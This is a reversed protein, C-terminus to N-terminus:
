TIKSNIWEFYSAIRTYVGPFGGGCPLGFSVVGVVTLTNKIVLPGGSDGQCTDAHIPFTKNPLFVPNALACLQSEMLPGYLRECATQNHVVLDAKLLNESIDGYFSIKGYGAAVVEARDRLIDDPQPLCAPQHSAEEALRLISIDHNKRKPNYEPHQSVGIIRIPKNGKRISGGGVVAYKLPRYTGNNFSCHAATLVYFKHILTGGCGFFDGFPTDWSLAVMFPFKKPDAENGNTIRTDLEIDRDVRIPTHCGLIQIENEECCVHPIKKTEEDYFCTIPTINYQLFSQTASPCDKLPLCKSSCPTRMEPQGYVDNARFTLYNIVFITLLIM